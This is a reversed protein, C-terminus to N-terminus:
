LDNNILKKDKTKCRIKFEYFLTDSEFTTFIFYYQTKKDVEKIIMRQTFNCSGESGQFYIWENLPISDIDFQKLSNYIDSIVKEKQEETYIKEHIYFSRITICGVFILLISILYVIKKM